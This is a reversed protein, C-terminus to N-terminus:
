NGGNQLKEPAGRPRKGTSAFTLKEETSWGEFTDLQQVAVHRAPELGLYFGYARLAELAVRLGGADGQAMAKSRIVRFLQLIEARAAERAEPDDRLQRRLVRNAESALRRVHDPTCRWEAALARDSVGALWEGAEMHALIAEIRRETKTLNAEWQRFTQGLPAPKKKAIM